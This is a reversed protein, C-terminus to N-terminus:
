WLTTTGFQAPIDLALHLGKDGLLRSAIVLPEIWIQIGGFAILQRALL